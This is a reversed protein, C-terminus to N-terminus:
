KTSNFTWHTTSQRGTTRQQAPTLVAQQSQNTEVNTAPREQWLAEEEILYRKGTRVDLLGRVTGGLSDSRVMKRRGLMLSLFENPQVFSFDRRARVLQMKDRRPISLQAPM